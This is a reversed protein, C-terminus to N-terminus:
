SFPFFGAGWAFHFSTERVTSCNPINAFSLFPVQTVFEEQSGRKHHCETKLALCQCFKARASSKIIRLWQVMRRQRRGTSTLNSSAMLPRTDSVVAAKNGNRAVQCHDRPGGVGNTHMMMFMVEAPRGTVVNCCRTKKERWTGTTGMLQRIPHGDSANHRQDGRVALEDAGLGPQVSELHSVFLSTSARRRGRATGIM